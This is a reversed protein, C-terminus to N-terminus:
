KVLKSFLLGVSVIFFVGGTTGLAPVESDRSHTIGSLITGLASSINVVLNNVKTSKSGLGKNALGWRKFM